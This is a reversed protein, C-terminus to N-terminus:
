VTETALGGPLTKNAHGYILSKLYPRTIHQAAHYFSDPIPKSTLISHSHHFLPLQVSTLEGVAQLRISLLTNKTPLHVCVRM